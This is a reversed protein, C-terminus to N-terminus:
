TTKTKPKRSNQSTLANACPKSCTQVLRGGHWRMRHATGCIVCSIEARKSALRRNDACRAIAACTLNCFQQEKRAPQFTAACQKCPRPGLRCPLCITQTSQGGRIFQGGCTDCTAYVDSRRFRPEPETAPVHQQDAAQVLGARIGARVLEAADRLIALREANDETTDDDGQITPRWATRAPRCWLEKGNMFFSMQLLPSVRLLQGAGARCVHDRRALRGRRRIGYRRRGATRWYYPTQRYHAPTRQASHSARAAM